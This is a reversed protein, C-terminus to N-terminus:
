SMFDGCYLEKNCTCKVTVATGLGTPIFSYVFKGGSVDAKCARHAEEFAKVTEFDKGELLFRKGKDDHSYIM